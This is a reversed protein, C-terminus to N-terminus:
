GRWAIEDGIGFEGTLVIGDMQGLKKHGRLQGFVFAISAFATGCRACWQLGARPLDLDVDLRIVFCNLLGLV